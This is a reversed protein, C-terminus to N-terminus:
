SRPEVRLIAIGERVEVPLQDPPDHEQRAAILTRIDEAIRHTADRAQTETIENPFVLIITAHRM